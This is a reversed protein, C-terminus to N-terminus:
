FFSWMIGKTPNPPEITNGNLIEIGEKYGIKGEVDREFVIDDLTEKAM